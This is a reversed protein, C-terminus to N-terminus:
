PRHGKQQLATLGTILCDKAQEDPQIGAKSDVTIRGGAPLHFTVTGGVRGRGIASEGGVAMLGEVLDRATLALLAVDEPEPNKVWATVRFLGKAVPQEEFLATEVAGGTFRDIKVRMHRYAPRAEEIRAESFRVRSGTPQRDQRSREPSKGFLSDVMKAGEDGCVTQAVRLAQARFAGAFATGSVIPGQKDRLHVADPSRADRGPSRIMMTSHVRLEFDIMAEERRDLIASPEFLGPLQALIASAPESEHFSAKPQRELVSHDRGLAAYAKWGDATTLDLRLARFSHATCDGLGRSKRAGLPIRRDRLDELVAALAGLAKAEDVKVSVEQGNVKDKGSFISVEFRLPFETGAQLIEREFKFDEKATGTVPDLHVGDRIDTEGPETAYSDYVFLPSEHRPQAGHESWGFLHWTEDLPPRRDNKADAEQKDADKARYGILRNSLATRLAGALTSGRLIPRGDEDREFTMDCNDGEQSGIQSPSEMRLTATIIWRALPVRRGGPESDTHKM